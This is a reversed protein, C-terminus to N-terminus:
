LCALIKDCILDIQENTLNYHMPLCFIKSSVEDSVPCDTQNYFPLQNLSPYFYRRLGIKERTIMELVANFQNENPIYISCYAYNYQCDESIEQFQINANDLADRYILFQDKRKDVIKQMHPLITMGMAAHVESNKGNIGNSSFTEPGNHGFNRQLHVKDLVEQKPSFVAGGEITHFLKTAHFSCTSADGFNFVSEGKYKVGFCHAADYIVKLSHKQAIEAIEDIDCTNGFIHTAIIATTKPTIKEEILSPNIAYTKPDIDVFVPKCKQWEIASSTAVYTFPTTIVEGALELAEIALQIAITGNTVFKLENKVGLYESVNKELRQVIPGNNTIWEASWIDNLYRQYEEMPPFYPITFLNM